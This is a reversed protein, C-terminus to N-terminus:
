TRRYIKRVKILDNFQKLVFILWLKKINKKLKNKEPDILFSIVGCFIHNNYMIHMTIASKFSESVNDSIFSIQLWNPIIEKDYRILGIFFGFLGLFIRGFSAAIGQFISAILCYIDYLQLILPLQITIKDKYILNNMLLDIFFQIVNPLFMVFLVMKYEWLMIWFYKNFTLGFILTLIITVILYSIATSGIM